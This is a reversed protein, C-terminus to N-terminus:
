KRDITFVRYMDLKSGFYATIEEPAIETNEM